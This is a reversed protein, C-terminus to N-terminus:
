SAEIAIVLVRCDHWVFPVQWALCFAAVGLWLQRPFWCPASSVVCRRWVGSCLPACPVAEYDCHRRWQRLAWCHCAPSYGGAVDAHCCHKGNKRLEVEQQGGATPAAIAASIPVSKKVKNQNPSCIPSKLKVNLEVLEAKSGEM